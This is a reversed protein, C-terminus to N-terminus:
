FFTPFFNSFVYGRAKPALHNVGIYIGGGMYSAYALWRGDPSWEPDDAMAGGAEFVFTVSPDVRHAPPTGSQIAGPFLTM